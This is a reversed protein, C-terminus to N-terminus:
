LLSYFIGLGVCCSDSFWYLRIAKPMDCTVYDAVERICSLIGRDALIYPPFMASLVSNAEHQSLVSLYIQVPSRLKLHRLPAWPVHPNWQPSSGQSKLSSAARAANMPRLTLTIHLAPPSPLLLLHPKCTSTVDEIICITVEDAQSPTVKELLRLQAWFHAARMRCALSMQCKQSKNSNEAPVQVHLILCGGASAPLPFLCAPCLHVPNAGRCRGAPCQGLGFDKHTNKSSIKLVLIEGHLARGQSQGWEWHGLFPAPSHPWVEAQDWAGSVLCLCPAEWKLCCLPYKTPTIAQAQRRTCSNWDERQFHGFLLHENVFGVESFCQACQAGAKVRENM